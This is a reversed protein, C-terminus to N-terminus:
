DWNGGLIFHDLKSRRGAFFHTDWLGFLMLETLAGLAVESKGDAEMVLSVRISVEVKSMRQETIGGRFEQVGKRLTSRVVERVGKSGFSVYSEKDGRPLNGAVLDRRHVGSHDGQVVGPVAGSKTVEGRQMSMVTEDVDEDYDLLEEEVRSLSGGTGRSTSPQVVESDSRQGLPGVGALERLTPYVAGLKVRGEARHEFTGQVEEEDDSIVVVEEEINHIPVAMKSTAGLQREELSCRSWRHADSSAAMKSAGGLSREKGSGGELEGGKELPPQAQKSGSDLRAHETFAQAGMRDSVSVANMPGSGRGGAAVRRVLSGGQRRSFRGVGRRRVGSILRLGSVDDVSEGASQPSRSVKRGFASKTKLKKFVKQPSTCAAVAASVGEASVRKPRRLGVWAEELVGDKILDERGEDQLVKLAQVVKSPEMIVIFCLLFFMVVLEVWCASFRRVQRLFRRVSVGLVFVFAWQTHCRGFLSGVGLGQRKVGQGPCRGMWFRRWDGELAHVMGCCGSLGPPLGPLGM